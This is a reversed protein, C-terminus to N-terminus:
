GSVDTPTGGDVAATYDSERWVGDVFKQRKTRHGGSSQLVFEDPLVKGNDKAYKLMMSIEAVRVGVNRVLIMGRADDLVGNKSYKAREGVAFTSATASARAVPIMLPPFSMSELVDLAKDMHRGFFGVTVLGVPKNRLKQTFFVVYRLRSFLNVMPPALTGIWTPGGLILGDAKEMKEVIPQLDDKIKCLARNEICWQCHVCMAVKKDALTVFDTEIGGTKEGVKEAAKLAEKVATDCNGGKIPTGSIGLIRVTM